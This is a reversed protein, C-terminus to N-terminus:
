TDRRLLHKFSELEKIALKQASFSLEMEVFKRYLNEDVYRIAPMRRILMVLSKIDDQIVDEREAVMILIDDDDIEGTHVLHHCNLGGSFTECIAAINFRADVQGAGKSFVHHPNRNSVLKRCWDCYGPGRAFDLAKDNVIKM